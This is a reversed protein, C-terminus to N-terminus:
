PKSSSVQAEQLLVVVGTTPELARYLAGADAPALSIRLWIEPREPRLGLRMRSWQREVWSREDLPANRVELAIHTQSRLEFLDPAPFLEEPTPPIEVEPANTGDHIFVSERELIREPVLVASPEVLVARSAAASKRLQMTELGTLPYERLTTAGQILHLTRRPVDLVLYTAGSRALALREERANPDVPLPAAAPETSEVPEAAQAPEAAWVGATALLVASLGSRLITHISSRM